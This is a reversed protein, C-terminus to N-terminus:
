IKRWYSEVMDTTVITKIVVGNKPLKNTESLSKLIYNSLLVGTQNGTLVKYKGEKDKVVVGIRDCDPDTGFIIDPNIDKAMELALAFVKPDEPNPYPATPFNGDPMEQEAVVFVNDYGLEKLVRRVPINGSGHIPTYIIKLDNAYKEVLDKRMTLNKIKDIYSLYINEGIIKLM